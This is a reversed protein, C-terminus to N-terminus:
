YILTSSVHAPDLVVLESQDGDEEDDEGGGETDSGSVADGQLTVQPEIEGGTPMACTNNSVRQKSHVKNWM